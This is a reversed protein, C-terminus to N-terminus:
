CWGGWSRMQAPKSESGSRIIGDLTGVFDTLVADVNDIGALIGIVDSSPHSFKKSLACALFVGLTQCLHITLGMGEWNNGAARARWRLSVELAHLDAGNRGIKVTAISKAFLERTRDDHNLLDAPGLEGLVRRLAAKDPRLAFFERWYGESKDV